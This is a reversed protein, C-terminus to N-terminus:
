RSTHLMPLASAETFLSPDSKVPQLNEQESSPERGSFKLPIFFEEAPCAGSWFKEGRRRVRRRRRITIEACGVHVKKALTTKLCCKAYPRAPLLRERNKQRLETRSSATTAWDSYGNNTVVSGLHQFEDNEYEVSGKLWNESGLYMVIGCQDFRHHSSTFDTKVVFSFFKERTKM